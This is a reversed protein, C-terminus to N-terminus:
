HHVELEIFDMIAFKHHKFRGVFAVEGESNGLRSGESERHEAEEIERWRM